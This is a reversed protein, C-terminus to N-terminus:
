SLAQLDLLLKKRTDLSKGLWGNWIFLGAMCLQFLNHPRHTVLVKLARHQSKRSRFLPKSLYMSMAMSAAGSAVQLLVVLDARTGSVVSFHFTHGVHVPGGGAFDYAGLTALWGGSTWTWHAIPSYVILPWFFVLPVLASLRASPIFTM